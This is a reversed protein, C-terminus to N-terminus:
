KSSCISMSDCCKMWGSALSCIATTLLCFRFEMRSIKPMCRSISSRVGGPAFNLMNFFVEFIPRRGTSREPQLEEIIKEIPLNQHAYAGLTVDRVRLLTERFTPEGSLDANLALSNLFFGIIGEIEPRNRGAIPTGVVISEAGTYRHLLVQYATLLTMFLTASNEKSLEKLAQSLERSFILRAGEGNFSQTAQRPKDIPLELMAPAHALQKRWYALESELVEGQLWGRQWAAYDAYQLPLEALQPTRGDRYAGYIEAVEGILVGMSWGDSIIHHLTLLLVHEEEDLKLICVRLLPGASLDFPTQAEINALRKAEPERESEPLYSLDKVPFTIPEAEAIVQVPENNVVAITTRLSEHRCIVECFTKELAALNLAGEFVVAVPMNFAFAGPELQDLFWLRQQAFSLPTREGPQRKVLPKPATVNARKQQLMQELLARKEPALSAIRESVNMTSM